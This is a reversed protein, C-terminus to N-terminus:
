LLRNWGELIVRHGEVYKKRFIEAEDRNADIQRPYEMSIKEFEDSTIEVNVFYDDNRSPSGHFAFYEKNGDVTRYGYGFRVQNSILIFKYGEM